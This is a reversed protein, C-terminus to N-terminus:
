RIRRTVFVPTTVVTAPSQPEGPLTFPVPLAARKDYGSPIVNVGEPPNSITSVYLWATRVAANAAGDISENVTVGRRISSPADAIRAHDTRSAVVIM